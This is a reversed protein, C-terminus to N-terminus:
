RLRGMLPHSAVQWGAEGPTTVFCIRLQAMGLSCLHITTHAMQRDPTIFWQADGRALGPSSVRYVCLEARGPDLVLAVRYQAGGFSGEQYVWAM